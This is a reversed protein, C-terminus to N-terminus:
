KAGKIEDLKRLGSDVEGGAVVACDCCVEEEPRDTLCSALATEISCAGSGSRCCSCCCCSGDGCGLITLRCQSKISFM